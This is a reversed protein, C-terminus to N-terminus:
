VDTAYELFVDFGIRLDAVVGATRANAFVGKYEDRIESQEKRLRARREVYSGALWKVFGATTRDRVKAEIECFRRTEVGDDELVDATIKATFNTLQVSEFGDKLRKNWNIGSVTAEYVQLSDAKAAVEAAM